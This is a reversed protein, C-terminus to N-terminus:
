EEATSPIAFLNWGQDTIRFRYRGATVSFRSEGFAKGRDFWIVAPEDIRATFSHGPRLTVLEQDRYFAVMWESEANEIHLFSKVPAQRLQPSGTAELPVVQVDLPIDIRISTPLSRRVLVQDSIRPLRSTTGTQQSDRQSRILRLSRSSAPVSSKLWASSALSVQDPEGRSRSRSGSDNLPTLELAAKTELAGETLRHVERDEPGTQLNVPNRDNRQDVTVVLPATDAQQSRLHQIDATQVAAPELFTTPAPQRRPRATRIATPRPPLTRYRDLSRSVTAIPAPMALHVGNANPLTPTPESQSASANLTWERSLTILSFLIALILM